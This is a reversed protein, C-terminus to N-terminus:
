LSPFIGEICIVLSMVGLDGCCIYELKIPKLHYIKLRPCSLPQIERTTGLTVEQSLPCGVSEEWNRKWRMVGCIVLLYRSNELSTFLAPSVCFKKALSEVVREM